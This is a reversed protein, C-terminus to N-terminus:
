EDFQRFLSRSLWWGNGGDFSMIKEILRDKHSVLVVVCESTKYLDYIMEFTIKTLRQANLVILYDCEISNGSTFVSRLIKNLKKRDLSEAGDLEIL